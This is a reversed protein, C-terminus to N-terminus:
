RRMARQDARLAMGSFISTFQDQIIPAINRAVEAETVGPCTVNINNTITNGSYMTNNTVAKAIDAVNRSVDFTNMKLAEMNAQLNANFREFIAAKDPMVDNLSILNNGIGDAFAQGSKGSNKLIRKTQEENFIVTGKPLSSLTPTTTLEYLGNPYVTLEPQGYESRLANSEYSPLGNYGSAFARGVTGNAHESTVGSMSSGATDAEQIKSLLEQVRAIADEISSSVAAINDLAQQTTEVGMEQLLLALEEGSVLISDDGSVFAEEALAPLEDKLATKIASFIDDKNFEHLAEHLEHVTEAANEAQALADEGTFEAGIQLNLVDESVGNIVNNCYEEFADPEMVGLYEGTNPDVMIPTFNVALDKAENSFTSSFVTAFGDGAEWGLKNLEEADIEPRLLLNVNGGTQLEILKNVIENLSSPIEDVTQKIIIFADEMYLVGDKATQIATNISSLDLKDLESIGKATSSLYDGLDGGSLKQLADTVSEDNANLSGLISKYIDSFAELSETDLNKIAEPDFGISSILAYNAARESLKAIEEWEKKYKEIGDKMKQYQEEIKELQEGLSENQEQIGDIIEQNAEKQENLLDIKKQISDIQDQYKEKEDNLKDIEKEVLDIEEQKKKIVLEYQLNDLNEKASRQASEDSRYRM